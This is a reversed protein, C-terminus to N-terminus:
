AKTGYFKEARTKPAGPAGEGRDFDDEKIAKGARYAFEVMAPHNGFGSETLAKRLGEGGLRDLAKASIATVEAFSKGDFKPDEAIAKRTESDWGRKIEDIQANLGTTVQEAVHPLIKEAYVGALKSMGENSLGIERAVPDLADLAVKDIETGEPLGIIEYDGEPAGLLANPEDGEDDGSKDPKDEGPKPEDVPKDEGPKGDKGADGLISGDAPQDDTTSSTEGPTTTAGTAGPQDTTSSQPETTLNEDAV